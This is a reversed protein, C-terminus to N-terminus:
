RQGRKRGCDLADVLEFSEVDRGCVSATTGGACVGPIWILWIVGLVLAGLLDLPPTVSAVSM